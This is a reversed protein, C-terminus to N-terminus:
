VGGCTEAYAALRKGAELAAAFNAEMATGDGAIGCELTLVGDRAFLATNKLQGMIRVWNVTGTFPLSHLDNKGDNDHLHMALLRHGWRALYNEGPAFANEHGSDYCFGVHTSDVHELLYHVYEPYVSNELALYVNYREAAEAARLYRALGLDFRTDPQKHGWTVHAIGTRIGLEGMRRLEDILRQTVDDGAQTDSGVATMGAGSLHVNEIPLGYRDALRVQNEWSTEEDLKREDFNLCVRDYGVARIARFRDELPSKSGAYISFYM